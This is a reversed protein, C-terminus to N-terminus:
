KSNWNIKVDQVQLRSFPLNWISYKPINGKPFYNMNDSVRRLSYKYFIMTIFNRLLPSFTMFDSEGKCIKSYWSITTPGGLFAHRLNHKIEAVRPPDFLVIFASFSISVNCEYFKWGDAEEAVLSFEKSCAQFM